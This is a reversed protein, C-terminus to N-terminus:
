GLVEFRRCCIDASPELLIEPLRDSLGFVIELCEDLLERGSLGQRPIISRNVDAIRNLTMARVVQALEAKVSLARMFATLQVCLLAACDGIQGHAHLLDVSDLSAMRSRHVAHLRRFWDELARIYGVSQKYQFYKLAFLVSLYENRFPFSAGGDAYQDIVVHGLKAVIDFSNFYLRFFDHAKAEPHMDAFSRIVDGKTSSHSMWDFTTIRYRSRACDDPM